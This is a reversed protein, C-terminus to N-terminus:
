DEVRLVWGKSSACFACASNQAGLLFGSLYECSVVAWRAHWCDDLMRADLMRADLMRADLMRADLMRADLMWCRADLM